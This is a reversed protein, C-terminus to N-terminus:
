HSMHTCSKVFQWPMNFMLSVVFYQCVQAKCLLRISIFFIKFSFVNLSVSKNFCFCLVTPIIRLIVSCLPVSRLLVFFVFLSCYSQFAFFFLFLEYWVTHLLAEKRKLVWVAVAVNIVVKVEFHWMCQTLRTHCFIIFSIFLLSLILIHTYFYTIQKVKHSMLLSLVWGLIPYTVSVRAANAAAYMCAHVWKSFTSM